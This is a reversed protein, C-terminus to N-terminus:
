LILDEIFDAGSWDWVKPANYVRLRRIRSRAIFSSAAAFHSSLCTIVGDGYFDRAEEAAQRERLRRQQARQAIHQQRAQEELVLLSIVIICNIKLILEAYWKTAKEGDNQNAPSSSLTKFRPCRSYYKTQLLVHDWFQLLGKVSQCRTLVLYQSEPM